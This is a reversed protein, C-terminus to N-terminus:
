FIPDGFFTRVAQTRNGVWVVVKVPAGADGYLGAAAAMMKDM